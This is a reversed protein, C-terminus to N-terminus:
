VGDAPRSQTETTSAGPASATAAPVHSRVSMDCQIARRARRRSRPRRLAAIPTGTSTRTATTPSTAPAIAPSVAAAHEARDRLGEGLTILGLEVAAAAPVRALAERWVVDGGTHSPVVGTTHGLDAGAHTLREAEALDDTRVLISDLYLM